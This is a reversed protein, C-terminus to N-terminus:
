ISKSPTPSLKKVLEYKKIEIGTMDINKHGNSYIKPVVVGEVMVTEGENPMKRKFRDWCERDERYVTVPFISEKGIKLSIVAFGGFSKVQAVEGKVKAYNQFRVNHSDSKAIDVRDADIYTLRDGIKSFTGTVVAGYLHPKYGDQEFNERNQNMCSELERYLRLDDENRIRALVKHYRWQSFREAGVSRVATAVTLYANSGVQADEGIRCQYVAGSLKAYSEM